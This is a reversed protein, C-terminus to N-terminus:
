LSSSFFSFPRKSRDYAVEPYECFVYRCSNASEHVRARSLLTQYVVRKDGAGVPCVSWPSPDVVPNASRSALSVIIDAGSTYRPM